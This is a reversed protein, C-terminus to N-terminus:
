DERNYGGDGVAYGVAPNKTQRTKLACTPGESVFQSLEQDAQQCPKKRSLAKCRIGGSDKGLYGLVKM